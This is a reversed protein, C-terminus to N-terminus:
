ISKQGLLSISLCLYVYSKMLANELSIGTSSFLSKGPKIKCGRDYSRCTVVKLLLM